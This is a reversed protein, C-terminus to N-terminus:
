AADADLEIDVMLDASLRELDAQLRAADLSETANLAIEAHFMPESSMAASAVHSEFREINLAHSALVQTVERVIGIRDHGILSLSFRRAPAPTTSATAVELALRFGPQARLAAELAHLSDQPVELKLVGAFKGALQAFSSELWNAGHESAIRSLHEVLGPRDDAILTIVLTTQM